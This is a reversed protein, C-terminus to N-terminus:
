IIGGLEIFEEKSISKFKIKDGMNVPCLNKINKDFMQFTTAGIINWGGPSSNPYIATQTDAIAVSGKIISKRPTHLISMATREDVEGLYAFGPAFGIAYVNYVKSSHLNIIEKISINKESSIRELDIGVELGYYVPIEFLKSYFAEESEIYKLKKIKSIIVEHSTKFIDYTIMLTTYSPILDIIFDFEKVKEYYFKVKKSTELSITDSFNVLFSDVSATKFDM